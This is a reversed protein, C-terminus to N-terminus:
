VGLPAIISLIIEVLVWLSGGVQVCFVNLGSLRACQLALRTKGSGPPGHLLVGRPMKIELQAIRQAQDIPLRIM